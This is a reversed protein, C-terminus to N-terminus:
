LLIQCQPELLFREAIWASYNWLLAAASLSMCGSILIGGALLRATNKKHESALYEATFRSLATQIGGCAFAMCFSYVPVTLQFLGIESSGITRSLFIKYFFGAIRTLLGASTLLITGKLLFRRQNM